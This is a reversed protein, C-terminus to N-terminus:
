FYARKLRQGLSAISFGIVMLLAAPACGIISEPVFWTPISPYLDALTQPNVVQKGFSLAFASVGTMVNGIAGLVLLFAGTLVLKNGLGILRRPETVFYEYIREFM